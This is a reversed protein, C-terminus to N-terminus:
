DFSFSKLTKYEPGQKKLVSEMVEISRVPFSLNLEEAVEPQNEPEIQRWIVTKIRALTIHPSFDRKERQFFFEPTQELREDLNKKIAELEPTKSVMGWIMKPPVAGPPGYVAQELNFEFPSNNEAVQQVPSFVAEVNKDKINGLFALTLHLNESETWKIPVGRSNDEMASSFKEKQREQYDRLQDKIEQPLNIAIFIRHFM